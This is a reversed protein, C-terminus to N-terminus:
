PCKKACTRLSGKFQSMCQALCAKQEKAKRKQNWKEVDAASRAIVDQEYVRKAVTEPSDDKPHGYADISDLQQQVARMNAHEDASAIEDHAEKRQSEPNFKINRLHGENHKVTEVTKAEM